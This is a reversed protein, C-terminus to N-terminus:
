HADFTHRGSPEHLSPDSTAYTSGVPVSLVVHEIAIGHVVTAFASAVLLGNTFNVPVVLSCTVIM